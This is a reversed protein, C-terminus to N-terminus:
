QAAQWSGAVRGLVQRLESTAERVAASAEQLIEPDISVPKGAAAQANAARALQNVNGGVRNLERAIARLAEEEGVSLPLGLGIQARVLSAVWATRTLGRAAASDAIVARESRRFRVTIKESVGGAVPRSRADPVQGVVAELMRRLLASKGGEAGALADFRAKM